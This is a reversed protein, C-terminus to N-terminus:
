LTLSHSASVRGCPRQLLCSKMLMNNKRNRFWHTLRLTMRSYYCRRNRNMQYSGNLLTEMKTITNEILPHYTVKTRSSAASSDNSPRKHLCSAIKEKLQTTGRDLALATTLVPVGLANELAAADVQVGLREAEDMLNLDLIVPLGADILQLTMPLM